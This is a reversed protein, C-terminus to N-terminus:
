QQQALGHLNLAAAAQLDFGTSQNQPAPKLAMNVAVVVDGIGWIFYAFISGLFFIALLILLIDPHNKFFKKM